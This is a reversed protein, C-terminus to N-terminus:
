CLSIKLYTYLYNTLSAYNLTMSIQRKEIDWESLITYIKEFLAVGSLPMLCFNLTRKQFFWNSDIFSHNFM